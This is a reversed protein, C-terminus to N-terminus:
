MSNNVVNGLCVQESFVDSGVGEFSVRYIDGGSSPITYM